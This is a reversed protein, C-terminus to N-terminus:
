LPARHGRRGCCAGVGMRWARPVYCCPLRRGAIASAGIAPPRPDAAGWGGKLECTSFLSDVRACRTHGTAAICHECYMSVSSAAPVPM